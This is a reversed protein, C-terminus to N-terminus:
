KAGGTVGSSTEKGAPAQELSLIRRSKSNVKFSIRSNKKASDECAKFISSYNRGSPIYYSEKLDKFFVETMGIKRLVRVTGSLVEENAELMVAAEESVEGSVEGSVEESTEEGIEKFDSAAPLAWSIESGMWVLVMMALTLSRM